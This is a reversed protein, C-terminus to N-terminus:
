EEATCPTGLFRALRRVQRAQDSQLEEYTMFLFKDPREKSAKWYGLIHDWYSGFQLVGNCFMEFAVELALDGLEEPGKSQFSSVSPCLHIFHM